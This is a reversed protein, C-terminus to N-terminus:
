NKILGIECGEKRKRKLFIFLGVLFKVVFKEREGERDGAEQGKGQWVFM